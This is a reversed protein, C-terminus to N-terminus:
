DNGNEEPKAEKAPPTGPESDPYEDILEPEPVDDEAILGNYGSEKDNVVRKRIDTGDIAGAQSLANDTQAKNLNVKSQEEATMADLSNWSVATEFPAINHAPALYSRIMLAHHREVLPTLDLSQICELEEHYSAEEYEGTANFGKPTTGLLKTAPVSAAAAVIQYQTMIVADLDNLTIDNQDMEDDTGIVKVGMNNWNLAFQEMNRDFQEQNALAKTIDTKLINTRKTLALLPAENATREAAYVREYIKQPIPVGGYLYTPKLIDSLNETRFIVLHSRHIKRGGIIWWTPEYFDRAAPNGSAEADLIPAVWYPDVQSIGKYSGETVGDINFPNEYYDPDDSEVEFLAIRIGFIRGMHVFEILNPILKFKEDMKVMDDLVEPDVETGDNVTIEFGNRTADKAPMLCAKSVLWNQSLLACMQHGIFSQSSYWCVQNDPISTNNQYSTKLTSLSSDMAMGPTSVAKNYQEFGKEFLNNISTAAAKVQAQGGRAMQTSFMSNSEEEETTTTTTIKVIKVKPEKWPFLKRWLKRIM